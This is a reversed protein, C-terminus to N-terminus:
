PFRILGPRSKDQGRYTFANHVESFRVNGLKAGDTM